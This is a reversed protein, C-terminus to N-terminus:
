SGPWARPLTKRGPGVNAVVVRLTWTSSWGRRLEVLWHPGAKAELDVGSACLSKPWLGGFQPGHHLDLLVCLSFDGPCPIGTTHSLPNLVQSTDPLICTRARAKSLSNSIWRQCLSHRINCTCSPDLTATVITYALLSLESEVRPGSIEM